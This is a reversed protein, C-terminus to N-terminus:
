VQPLEWGKRSERDLYRNLEPQNTCRMAPRSWEVKRGEGARIALCGMLIM